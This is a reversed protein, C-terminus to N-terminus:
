TRCAVFTTALDVQLARVDSGREVFQGTPVWGIGSSGGTVLARLRHANQVGM